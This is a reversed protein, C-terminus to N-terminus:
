KKQWNEAIDIDPIKTELVKTYYKYKSIIMHEFKASFKLSKWNTRASISM